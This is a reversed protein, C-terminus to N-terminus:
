NLLGGSMYYRIDNCDEPTLSTQSEQLKRFKDINNKIAKLRLVEPRETKDIIGTIRRLLAEYREIQKDRRQIEGWLRLESQISIQENNEEESM